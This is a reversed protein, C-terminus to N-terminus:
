FPTDGYLCGEFWTLNGGLYVVGSLYEYFMKGQQIVNDYPPPCLDSGYREQSQTFPRHPLTSVTM